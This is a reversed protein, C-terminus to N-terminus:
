HLGEQRVITALRTLGRPTVRVQTSTWERGDGKEGTTVKHELHHPMHDQYALWGSGMPRRYIWGKEQLIQTLRRPQVQLTKAADTLCLSGDSRAIRDFGDVKPAAEALQSELEIVKETYGLLLTRMSVPDRLVEMPDRVVAAQAELEQWRGIISHRLMVNYGSILTMTHTKDLSFGAVYGRADREWAFGRQDQHSLESGDGCIASLLADANERIYESHRNRYQEPVIRALQEAGHLEVLMIRIDRLVNKHEKGTLDAIERSSMTVPSQNSKLVVSM